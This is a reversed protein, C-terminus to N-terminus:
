QEPQEAHDGMKMLVVEGRRNVFVDASLPSRRPNQQGFNIPSYDFRLDRFHVDYDQGSASPPEIDLLPFRSWDLYARGLRSRKAALTIATEGPKYFINARYQLDINAARLDIPIKAYLSQTEIIGEWVFPNLPYPM